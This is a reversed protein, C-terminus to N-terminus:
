PHFAAPCMTKRFLSANDLCVLFIIGALFGAAAPFWTYVAMNESMGIAPMILSWIAAALMVGSAFGPLLKELRGNIKNKMLFVMASGCMTGIFPILIGALIDLKGVCGKYFCVNGTIKHLFALLTVPM